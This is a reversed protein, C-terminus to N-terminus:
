RVNIDCKSIVIGSATVSHAASCRLLYIVLYLFDDPELGFNLASDWPSWWLQWCHRNQPLIIRSAPITYHITVGQIM